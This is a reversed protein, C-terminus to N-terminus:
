NKTQKIYLQVKNLDINELLRRQAEELNNLNETALTDFQKDIEKLQKQNELLAAQLGGLSRELIRM